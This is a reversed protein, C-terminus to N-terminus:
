HPLIKIGRDYLIKSGWIFLIIGLIPLILLYSFGGQKLAVRFTAIFGGYFALGFGGIQLIRALLVIFFPTKIM